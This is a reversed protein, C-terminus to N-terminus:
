RSVRVRYFRQAGEAPATQHTIPKVTGDGAVGPPLPTWNIPPTLSDAYELTYTCGAITAMTVSFNTGAVISWVVLADLSAYSVQDVWGADGGSAISHDKQYRWNLTHTGNTVILVQNTWGVEGSIRSQEVGDVLFILPDSYESSVKWWYSLLGPGAVTTALTTSQNHGIDGSRASATGDHTTVMEPFWNGDGSTSWNWSPANLAEPLPPALAFAVTDVWGADYGANIDYDKVYTWDLVHAGPRIVYTKPTWDVESAIREQENGDIAFRLSDAYESSVKWRFTLTGPGTVASHASSSQNHSIPGSQLAASGDFTFENQGFFPLTGDATWSPLGGGADTLSSLAVPTYTIQDVWGADSGTNISYDKSYRWSLAHVGWPVRFTCNTWDVEGSIHSQYVGDVLFVLPDSYESSVKWWYSVTGPGTVTTEMTSSQNHSIFGSRAAGQGDHHTVTQGFWAADGYTQVPLPISAAAMELSVLPTPTFAVQDLFGANYAGSVAYDVAFVWRIVHPGWGVAFKPQSWNPVQEGSINAQEVGDLQCALRDYGAESSVTWYFSVEGPGYVTTEIYTSSSFPIAPSRLASAGDHTIESQVVWSGGAGGTTWAGEPYNLAAEPDGAATVTLRAPECAVVGDANSATLWYWGSDTNTLVTLVLNTTTVGTVRGDDSLPTGYRMWQYIVPESGSVAASLSATAGALNTQSLPWRTFSPLTVDMALPAPDSITIGGANSVVVTYVGADGARAPSISLIPGAVGSVRETLALDTGNKRWQYSLANTSAVKFVAVQGSGLALGMPQTTLYPTQAGAGALWLPLVFVTVFFRPPKMAPLTRAMFKRQTQRDRNIFNCCQM